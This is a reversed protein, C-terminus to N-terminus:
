APTSTELGSEQGLHQCWCMQAPDRPVRGHSSATLGPPLGPPPVSAPGAAPCGKTWIRGQSPPRRLGNEWPPRLSGPASLVDNGSGVRLLARSQGGGRAGSTRGPRVPPCGPPRLVAPPLPPRSSGALRVCSKRNRGRARLFAGGVGRGTKPGRSSVAGRASALQPWAAATSVSRPRFGSALGQGGEHTKALHLVTLWDEQEYSPCEDWSMPSRLRHFPFPHLVRWRTSSEQGSTM